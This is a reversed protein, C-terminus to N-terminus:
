ELYVDRLPPDVEFANLLMGIMGYFGALAVLEVLESRGLALAAREFSRNSLSGTEALERALDYILREGENEFRPTERDRIADIVQKSLGVALARKEHVAWAFQATAKRAMVLICLEVLKPPLRTRSQFYAQTHLTLRGLTPSLLLIEFPGRVHGRIRMVEEYFAGQDADLDVPSIRPLRPMHVELM